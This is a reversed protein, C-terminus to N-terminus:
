KGSRKVSTVIKYQCGKLIPKPFIFYIGVLIHSNEVILDTLLSMFLLVFLLFYFLFFESLPTSLVKLSESPQATKRKWWWYFSGHNNIIFQHIRTARRTALCNLVKSRLFNSFRQFDWFNMSYNRLVCDKKWFLIKNTSTFIM